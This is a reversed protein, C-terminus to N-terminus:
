KAKYTIKLRVRTDGTDSGQVTKIASVRSKICAALGSLPASGVSVGAAKKSSGIKFNVTVTGFRDAGKIKRKDAYCKSFSSRQREVARVVEGKTLAGSTQVNLSVRFPVLAPRKPTNAKKELLAKRKREVEAKRDAEEQKERLAAARAAEEERKKKKKLAERRALEAAKAAAKKVDDAELKLRATEARREKRERKLRERRTEKRPGVAVPATKADDTTEDVVTEDSTTDDTANNAVKNAVKNAVEDIVPTAASGTEPPPREDTPKTEAIAAVNATESPKDDSSALRLAILAAAAVSVGLITLNLLPVPRKLSGPEVTPMPKRLPQKAITDVARTEEEAVDGTNLSSLTGDLLSSAPTGSAIGALRLNDSSLSALPAPDTMTRAHDVLKQREVRQEAFVEDMMEAIEPLGLPEGLTALYGRLLRSLDRTSELRYEPNRQLAAKAALALTAPISPDIERADPADEECIVLASMPDSDRKFLRTLTLLEWLVVGLSWVDTRRDVVGTDSFQEPAMYAIKGKLVIAKTQHLQGESRAIGFDMVQISGDYGVCINNPTVDRHVVNRPNGSSDKLEHAAHLGEAASAIVFAIYAHWLDPKEGSRRIRSALRSLTEGFVYEMAIFYTKNVCGFDIVSCVNPHNIEAVIQAEDLFMEVIERRTALHPHISKVAVMKEFGGPGEMRALYVTAM